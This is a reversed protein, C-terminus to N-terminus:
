ESSPGSQIYSYQISTSKTRTSLDTILVVHGSRVSGAVEDANKSEAPDNIHVFGIPCSSKGKVRKHHLLLDVSEPSMNLLKGGNILVEIGMFTPYLDPQNLSQHQRCVLHYVRMWEDDDWNHSEKALISAVERMLNQCM